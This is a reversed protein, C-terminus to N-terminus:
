YIKISNIQGVSFNKYGDHFWLLPAPPPEGNSLRYTSARRLLPVKRVNWTYSLAQSTSPYTKIFPYPFRGNNDTFPGSLPVLLLGCCAPCMKVTEHINGQYCHSHAGRLFLELKIGFVMWKQHLQHESTNRQWQKPNCITVMISGWMLRSPPYWM